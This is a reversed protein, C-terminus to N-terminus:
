RRSLCYCYIYESIGNKLSVSIVIIQIAKRIKLLRIKINEVMRTISASLLVFSIVIKKCTISKDTYDVERTHEDFVVNEFTCHSSFQITIDSM